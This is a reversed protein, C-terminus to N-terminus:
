FLFQLLIAIGGTVGLLLAYLFQTNKKENKNTDVLSNTDSITQDLYIGADEKYFTIYVNADDVNISDEYKGHGNWGTETLIACIYGINKCLTGNQLILTFMNDNNTDIKTIPEVQNNHKLLFDIVADATHLVVDTDDVDGKNYIEFQQVKRIIWRWSIYGNSQIEFSSVWKKTYLHGCVKVLDLTISSIIFILCNANSEEMDINEYQSQVMKSVDESTLTPDM